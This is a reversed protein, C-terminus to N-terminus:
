AVALQNVQNHFVVLCFFNLTDSSTFFASGAPVLNLLLMEHLDIASQANRVLVLLAAAFCIRIVFASCFLHSFSVIWVANVVDVLGLSVVQILWEGNTIIIIIIFLVLFRLVLKVM